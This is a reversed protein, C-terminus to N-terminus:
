PSVAVATSCSVDAGKRSMTQELAEWVQAPRLATMCKSCDGNHQLCPPCGVEKNASLVKLNEPYYCTILKPDSPGFLGVTPTGCAAALHLTGTDPSVIGTARRLVGTCEQLTTQGRLDLEATPAQERSDLQGLLVVAYGKKQSLTAFEPWYSPDWRRLNNAWSSSCMVIFPKDGLSHLLEDARAQAEPEQYLETHKDTPPHGWVIDGFRDVRPTTRDYETAYSDVAFILDVLYDYCQPDFSPHGGGDWTHIAAIHPNGWLVSQFGSVCAVHVELGREASERILPTMLVLDGIGGDRVLLLTDGDALEDPQPRRWNDGLHNHMFVYPLEERSFHHWGPEYHRLSIDGPLLVPSNPYKCYLRM